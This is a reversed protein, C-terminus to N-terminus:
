IEITHLLTHKWVCKSIGYLPFYHLKKTTNFSCSSHNMSKLANHTILRVVLVLIDERYVLNKYKYVRM